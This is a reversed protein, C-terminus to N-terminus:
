SNLLLKTEEGNDFEGAIVAMAGVIKPARELPFRIKAHRAHVVAKGLQKRTCFRGLSDPFRSKV